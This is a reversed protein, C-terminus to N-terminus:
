GRDLVDLVVMRGLAHEAQEGSHWWGVVRRDAGLRGAVGPVVDVRIIERILSKHFKNVLELDKVEGHGFDPAFILIGDRVLHTFKDEFKVPGLLLNGDCPEFTFGLGIEVADPDEREADIRLTERLGDLGCAAVAVAVVLLLPNSCHCLLFHATQGDTAFDEAFHGKEGVLGTLGKVGFDGAKAHAAGDAHLGQRAGGHVLLNTKVAADGDDHLADTVEKKGEPRTGIGHSLFPSVGMETFGVLAGAGNLDILDGVGHRDGRTREVLSGDELGEAIVVEEVDAKRLVAEGVDARDLGLVVKDAHLGLQGVADVFHEGPVNLAFRPGFDDLGVFLVDGVLLRDDFGAVTKQVRPVEADDLSVLLQAVDHVLRERLPADEQMRGLALEDVPAARM